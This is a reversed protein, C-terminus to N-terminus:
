VAAPRPDRAPQVTSRAGIRQALYRADRGVGTIVESTASYQRDLGLFYIGPQSTVVGRDHVPSGGADLVPLDIWSYDPRFGTCWIVNAVDLVRGDELEPKGDRVGAVRPVREVGAALIDKPKVRVLPHGGGLKPLVKRGVPTGWNLVHHGAFRVLHVLHRTVLGDIRFPIHGPHRGALYTRHTRVTEMCIDAGSNGAGVLLVPGPSLQSPNRYDKSHMQTIHQSLEGAFGPTWPDNCAGTAVVVHAAELTRGAAEVVMRDGIRSIREVRVGTRVPLRLTSRYTELYDAFQDKTPATTRAGRFRLGQLSDYWGPTFLRLSDWRNRWSDGVRPNAELIVFRHGLRTLHYGMTLGAQGGGVIITDFREGASM